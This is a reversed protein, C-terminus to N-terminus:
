SEPPTTPKEENVAQDKTAEQQRRYDAMLEPPRKLESLGKYGVIGTAISAALKERWEPEHIRKAEASNSVFGGEVLISPVTALRIVAFRARKLGRDFETFHGLMAHYVSSALAASPVDVSNGPENRFHRPTLTADGTSPAGRPTLAFVEFGSANTRASNFHVSVFISNPIANAVKPRRELPVFVDSDRTMVVKIGQKELIAKIRRCVDLTYDKERGLKNTAGRDHGGHGADLVVTEVPKLNAIRQPRLMPEITKALDVRSILVVGDQERVPFSLWQKVGNIVAERSNVRVSIEGHGSGTALQTSYSAPMIGEASTRAPISLGYFESINDLSVYDRGEARHLKWEGAHMVATLVFFLISSLLLRPM